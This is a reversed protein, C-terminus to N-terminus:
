RVPLADKRSCSSNDISLALGDISGIMDLVDKIDPFTGQEIKVSQFSSTRNEGLDSQANLVKKGRKPPQVFMNSTIFIICGVLLLTVVVPPLFVAWLIKVNSPQTGFM